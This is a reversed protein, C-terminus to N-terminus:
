FVKTTGKEWVFELYSMLKFLHVNFHWVMFIGKLFVLLLSVNILAATCAIFNICLSLVNFIDIRSCCSILFETILALM